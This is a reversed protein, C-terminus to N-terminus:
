FHQSSGCIVCKIEKAFTQRAMDKINEGSCKRKKKKKGYPYASSRGLIWTRAEKQKIINEEIIERRECKVYVDLLFSAVGECM